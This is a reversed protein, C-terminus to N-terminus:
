PSLRLRYFASIDGPADTWRGDALQREWRDLPDDQGRGEFWIPQPTPNVIEFAAWSGGQTTRLGRFYVRPEASAVSAACGVSLLSGATLLLLTTLLKTM